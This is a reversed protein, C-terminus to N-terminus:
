QKEQNPQEAAFPLMFQARAITKRQHHHQPQTKGANRRQRKIIIKGFYRKGIRKKFRHAPQRCRPRRHNRIQVIQRRRDVKPPMHEVPQPAHPNDHQRHRNQRHQAHPPRLQKLRLNRPHVFVFGRRANRLRCFLKPLKIQSARQPNRNRQMPRPHVPKIRHAMRHRRKRQPAKGRMVAVNRKKIRRRNFPHNNPRRQQAADIKGVM